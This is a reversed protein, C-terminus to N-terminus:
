CRSKIFDGICNRTPDIRFQKRYPPWLDQNKSSHLDRLSLPVLEEPEQLFPTSSHSHGQQQLSCADNRPQLFFAEHESRKTVATLFFDLKGLSHGTVQGCEPKQRNKCPPHLHDQSGRSGSLLTLYPIRQQIRPRKQSPYNPPLEPCLRLECGKEM